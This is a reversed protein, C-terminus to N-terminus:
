AAPIAPGAIRGLPFPSHTAPIKLLTLPVSFFFVNDLKKTNNKNLLFSQGRSSGYFCATGLLLKSPGSRM